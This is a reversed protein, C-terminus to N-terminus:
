MGPEESPQEYGDPPHVVVQSDRGVAGTPMSAQPTSTTPKTPIPMAIKTPQTQQCQVSSNGGSGIADQEPKAFVIWYSLMFIAIAGVAILVTSTKKSKSRQVTRAEKVKDDTRRQKVANSAAEVDKLLDNSASGFDLDIDYIKKDDSMIHM